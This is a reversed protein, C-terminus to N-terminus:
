LFTRSGSQLSIDLASTIVGSTALILSSSTGISTSSSVRRSSCNSSTGISSSSNQLFHLSYQNLLNQMEQSMPPLTVSGTLKKQQSIYEWNMLPMAHISHIEPRNLPYDPNLPGFLSGLKEKLTNYETWQEKTKPYVKWLSELRQIIMEALHERQVKQFQTNM